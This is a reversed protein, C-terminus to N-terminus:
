RKARRNCAPCCEQIEVIIKLKSAKKDIAEGIIAKLVRYMIGARRANPVIISAVFEKGEKNIM